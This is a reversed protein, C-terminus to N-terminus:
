IVKQGGDLKITHVTLEQITLHSLEAKEVQNKIKKLFKRTFVKLDSAWQIKPVAYSLCLGNRKRKSGQEETAM